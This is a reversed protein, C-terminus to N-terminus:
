ANKRQNLRFIGSLIQKKMRMVLINFFHSNIGLFIMVFLVIIVNKWYKLKCKQHISKLNNAINKSNYSKPVEM